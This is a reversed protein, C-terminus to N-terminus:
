KKMFISGLLGGTFMGYLTMNSMSSKLTCTGSLCGIEQWYIYGAIGGLVIGILILSYKKLFINLM